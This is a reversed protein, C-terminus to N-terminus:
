GGAPRLARALAYGAWVACLCLVVSGAVNVCAPGLRDQQILSLTQWSFSSFTTFGGLVGVGIFHRVWERESLGFALGICFSGIVNVAITGWPFGTGLRLEFAGSLAFRCVGGLASGLAVQLYPHM